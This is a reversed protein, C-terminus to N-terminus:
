DVLYRCSPMCFPVVASHVYHLTLSSGTVGFQVHGGSHPRVGPNSFSADPPQRPRQHLARHKFRIASAYLWVVLGMERPGDGGEM